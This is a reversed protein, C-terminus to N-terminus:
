AFRQGAPVEEKGSRSLDEIRAGWRELALRMEELYEWRDYIRTVGRESHNLIKGIVFRSTGLAALNTACTRRLDHSGFGAIGLRELNRGIAHALFLPRTPGKRNPTLSARDPSSGTSARGRTASLTGLM